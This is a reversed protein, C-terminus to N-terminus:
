QCLHEPLWCLLNAFAWCSTLLVCYTPLLRAPLWCCIALRHFGLLFDACLLDIFTWCSTLVYYIPSLEIPLWCCIIFRCFGLLFSFPYYCRTLFILSFPTRIAIFGEVTTHITSIIFLVTALENLCLLAFIVFYSVFYKRVISTFDWGQM